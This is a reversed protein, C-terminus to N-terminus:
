DGGRISWEKLSILPFCHGIDWRQGIGQLCAIRQNKEHVTEPTQDAFRLKSADRLGVRRLLSALFQHIQRQLTTAGVVDGHEHQADRNLRRPIRIGSKHLSEGCHRWRAAFSCSSACRREAPVDSTDALERARFAKDKRHSRCTPQKAM